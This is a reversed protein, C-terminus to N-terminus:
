IEAVPLVEIIKRIICYKIKTQITKKHLESPYRFGVGNGVMPQPVRAPPAAPRPVNNGGLLAGIIISVM